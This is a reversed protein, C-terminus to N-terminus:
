LLVKSALNYDTYVYSLFAVIETVLLLIVIVILSIYSKNSFKLDLKRSFLATLLSILFFFSGITLILRSAM